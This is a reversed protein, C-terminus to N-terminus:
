KALLTQSMPVKVIEEGGGDIAATFMVIECELNPGVLKKAISREKVESAFSINWLKM